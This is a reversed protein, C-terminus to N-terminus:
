FGDHRSLYGQLMSNNERKKEPKLFIHRIERKETERAKQNQRYQPVEELRTEHESPQLGPCLDPRNMKILKMFSSELGGPKIDWSKM